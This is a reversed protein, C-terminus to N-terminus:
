AARRQLEGLEEPAIVTADGGAARAQELAHRATVWPQADRPSAVGISITIPMGLRPSRESVVARIRRCVPASQQAPTSPMLVGLTDDDVRGVLDSARVEGTILEAILRLGQNSEARAPRSPLAESAEWDISAVLLASSPLHSIDDGIWADVARRFAAPALAGTVVDRRAADTSLVNALSDHHSM